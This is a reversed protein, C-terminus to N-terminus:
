PRDRLLLASCCYCEAIFKPVDESLVCYRLANLLLQQYFKKTHTYATSQLLLLLLLLLLL